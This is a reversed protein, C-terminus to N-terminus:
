NSFHQSQQGRDPPTDFVIASGVGCLPAVVLSLCALMWWNTKRLLYGLLASIAVASFYGVFYPVPSGHVPCLGVGGLVSILGAIFYFPKM